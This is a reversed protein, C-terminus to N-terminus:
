NEGSLLALNGGIATTNITLTRENLFKLLYHPGGAKPGTGSLGEGGFPQVGVVAGTMGRNVYMNGAKIRSAFFDIHDEIRSQLGFTLGFGTSNIDEAVQELESAKFRIIHLVPGFVEGELQRINKIEFAHPAVFSGAAAIAPAVPSAAVLSAEQQMREIHRYLERRAEGDIVPGVDTAFDMPHGLRLEQMAGALLDMLPEAIDEQVYLVRLASCRQGASGFASLVIDDVAQELLASSDVVMCNQGGTEAIFAPIAGKRAALARNISQATEMSGTFVIGSIRGDETLAKGIVSGSGPILQVAERPIGAEHMLRVAYAAVLPTQAAPKALVCNGTALAAAVQGTFIALPFNWPSICGFVGRPVLRLTNSEGTPGALTEPEHMLKKAEAAYYRCFDAAERVESIGDAITKGAERSLLAILEAANEEMRDAVSELMEARVAVPTKAWGAFAKHAAEIARPLEEAAINTAEGVINELRAPEVIERAIGAAKGSACSPAAQWKKQGFAALQAQLRDCMDLNGLDYGGSNKRAKGYIGRPLPIASNPTAGGQRTKAVPDALLVDLPTEEDMLLNVFSTNAGNELLRRILYALLDKHPGVPAYIRCPHGVVAADYLGEGMGHLRQFEFEEKNVRHHKAMQGITAFSRANHTAFQAYFCDHAALIKDACALYSVDTHEKRTFVPYAPHGGVQAWKIESDWYAGKVLRVPIVRHYRRSLVILYDIVYFARKQYAQVVFGIGNWGTFAADAFIESFLLMEIDLRTAEEADISVTIGYQKALLLIEKLRPLLEKLVRDKQSFQYRPHLASLKVSIGPAEFLPKGKAAKGIEAIAHRYAAVYAQAQVDSRAGEGLIDYSFRYGKEGYSKSRTLAEDITEGLVFQTGIFRMASKLAERIVPDGFKSVLKGLIHAPKAETGAGLEVVKGTLLLGWSSANVFLSESGGLHKEWETSEFKDRILRNATESDPIRLLAEALCMIAVGERTDLGYEHLFAEVGIASKHARIKGVLAEAERRIDKEMGSLHALQVLLREVSEKEPLWAKGSIDQQLALPSAAEATHIAPKAM